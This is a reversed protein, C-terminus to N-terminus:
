PGVKTAKMSQESGVIQLQLHIAVPIKAYENRWNNKLKSWLKPYNAEVKNGFGFVDSRCNEKLLKLLNNIKVKILSKAAKILKELGAPQFVDGTGDIESIQAAIKVHISMQLGQQEIVPEIAAQCKVITLSVTQLKRNISPEPTFVAQNLKNMLLLLIRTQQGDLLCTVKTRDLVATGNLFPLIGNKSSELSVIPLITCASVSRLDNSFQWYPVSPFTEAKRGLFLFDLYQSVIRQTQPNSKLLIEAATKEKSLLLWITDRIKRNRKIWDVTGILLKEQQLLETSFIIVKAHSWLLQRGAKTQMGVIADIINRGKSQYIKSSFNSEKGSSTPLTIEVTLSIGQSEQDYDVATGMVIIQDDIERYDWCGSFLTLTLCIFVPIFRNTKIIM